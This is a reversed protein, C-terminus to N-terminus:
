ERSVAARQNETKPKSAPAAHEDLLLSPEAPVPLPPLGLVGFPPAAVAPPAAVVPPAIFAEPATPSPPAGVPPLAGIAPLLAPPALPALPAVQVTLGAGGAVVPTHLPM